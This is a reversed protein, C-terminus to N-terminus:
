DILRSQTISSHPSLFTHNIYPSNISLYHIPSPHHISLHVKGSPIEDQTRSDRHNRPLRPLRGLSWRLRRSSPFHLSPLPHFYKSFTILLSVVDLVNAHAAPVATSLAILGALAVVVFAADMKQLDIRSTLRTPRSIFQHYNKPTQARSTPQCLSFVAVYRLIVSRGGPLGRSCRFFQITAIPPFPFCAPSPAKPTKHALDTPLGSCM